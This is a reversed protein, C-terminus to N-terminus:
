GDHGGVRGRLPLTSCYLLPANYGHDQIMCLDDQIMCLDDQIMCLADQIM